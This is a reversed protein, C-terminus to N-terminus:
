LNEEVIQNLRDVLDSLYAIDETFYCYQVVEVYHAIDSTHSIDSSPTIQNYIIGRQIQELLRLSEHYKRELNSTTDGM